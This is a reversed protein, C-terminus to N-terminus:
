QRTSAAIPNIIWVKTPIMATRAETGAIAQFIVFNGGHKEALRLAEAEAQTLTEHVWSPRRNTPIIHENGFMDPALPETLNIIVFM